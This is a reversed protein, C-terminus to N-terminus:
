GQCARRAAVTASCHSREIQPYMNGGSLDLKTLRSLEPLAAELHWFTLGECGGVYLEELATLKSLQSHFGPFLGRSGSVDLVRLGAQRLFVGSVVEQSWRQSSLRLKQLKMSPWVGGDVDSYYLEAAAPFYDASQGVASGDPM